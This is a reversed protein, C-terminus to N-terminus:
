VSFYSSQSLRNGFLWIDSLSGVLYASVSAVYLLKASGFIMDFSSQTVNFPKDLYPMAQAINM